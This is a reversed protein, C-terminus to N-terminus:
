RKHEAKAAPKHKPKSTGVQVSPAISVDSIDSITEDDLMEYDEYESLQSSSDM